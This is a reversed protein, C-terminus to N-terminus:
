QADPEKAAVIVLEVKKKRETGVGRGAGTCAQKMTLFPRAEGALEGSACARRLTDTHRALSLLSFALRTGRAGGATGGAWKPWAAALRASPPLLLVGSKAERKNQTETLFLM